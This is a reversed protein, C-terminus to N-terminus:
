QSSAIQKIESKRYSALYYKELNNVDKIQDALTSSNDQLYLAALSRIRQPRTLYVWQVELLQIKDEYVAIENETKAMEDQLAEVKFEIVFTLIITFIVSIFFLLNLFCSKSILQRFKKM